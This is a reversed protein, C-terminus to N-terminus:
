QPARALTQSRGFLARTSRLTCFLAVIVFVSMGLLGSLYAEWVPWQLIFTTEGYSKKDLMGLWLRWGVIVAVGLLLLDAALDTLRNMLRPMMTAFLDVRAHGRAYQTWPLFSFIVFGVGLEM